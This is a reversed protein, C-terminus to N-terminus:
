TRDSAGAKQALALAERIRWPARWAQLTTEIEGRTAGWNYELGLWKAADHERKAVSPRACSTQCPKALATENGPSARRRCAGCGGPLRRASPPACLASWSGSINLGRRPPKHRIVSRRAADGCIEARLVAM